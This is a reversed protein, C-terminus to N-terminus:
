GTFKPSLPASIPVADDDVSPAEDSSSPPEDNSSPAEACSGAGIRFAGNTFESDPLAAGNIAFDFATLGLPADKTVTTGPEVTFTSDGATVEFPEASTNTVTVIGPGTDGPCATTYGITYGLRPAVCGPSGVDITAPAEGDIRISEQLGNGLAADPFDVSETAGPAVTFTQGLAIVEIPETGNNTVALTYTFSDGIAAPCNGEISVTYTPADQAGAASPAVLMVLSFLLATVALPVWRGRSLTHNM